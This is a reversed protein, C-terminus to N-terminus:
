EKPLDISRFKTTPDPCNDSSGTRRERKGLEYYYTQALDYQGKTSENWGNTYATAYEKRNDPKMLAYDLFVIM